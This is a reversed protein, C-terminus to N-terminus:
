AVRNAGFPRTWYAFALGTVAIHAPIYDIVHGGTGDFAAAVVIWARIEGTGGQLSDSDYIFLNTLPKAQGLAIQDLVWRDLREDIWGARSGRPDHSLGGSALIGIRERRQDLIEALTRGLDFCRRASPLPEHISNLFIPVIPVDLRPLELAKGPWAFAHGIGATPRSLPKLERLVVPDFGHTVLGAAIFAALDPACPLAVHNDSLDQGLMKINATGTVNEGTFIALSPRFARSFVEDQDDGVIVLADLQGGMLVDRLVALAAEIRGAYARVVEEDEASLETPQPVGETMDAHMAQWNDTSTFVAPAHSSALGLTLPV